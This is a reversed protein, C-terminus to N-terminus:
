VLKRLDGHRIILIAEEVCCFLALNDYDLFNDELSDLNIGVVVIATGSKSDSSRLTV